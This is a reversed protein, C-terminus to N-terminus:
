VLNIATATSTVARTPRMAGIAEAPEDGPAGTGIGAQIVRMWYGPVLESGVTYTLLRTL